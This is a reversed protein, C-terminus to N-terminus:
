KQKALLYSAFTNAQLNSIGAVVSMLIISLLVLFKQM